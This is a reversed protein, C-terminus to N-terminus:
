RSQEVTVPIGDFTVGEYGRDLFDSPTLALAPAIDAITEISVGRLTIGNDTVLVQEATINFRSVLEAASMLRTETTHAPIAITM